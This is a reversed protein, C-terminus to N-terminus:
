NRHHRDINL